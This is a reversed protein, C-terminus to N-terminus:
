CSMNTHFYQPSWSLNFRRLSLSSTSIGLVLQIVAFAGIGVALPWHSNDIAWARHAFFAQVIFALIPVLLIELNFSFVPPENLVLFNGFNTVTYYYATHSMLATHLSDLVWVGAVKALDIETQHLKMLRALSLSLSSVLSKYYWPDKPFRDYYIYAQSSSMGFLSSM